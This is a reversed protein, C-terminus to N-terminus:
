SPLSRHSALGVLSELQYVTQPGYRKEVLKGTPSIIYTAPLGAIKDVGFQTIPNGLVNPFDIGMLTVLTKIKETPVKDYNVGYIVINNKHKKYFTNLAPIEKFCPKCWSAWYNLIVWKGKLSSLPVTKGSLLQFQIKKAHSTPKSSCGCLVFLFLSVVFWMGMKKMENGKKSFWGIMVLLRPQEM